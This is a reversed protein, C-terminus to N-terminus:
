ERSVWELNRITAQSWPAVVNGPIAVLLPLVDLLDGLLAQLVGLPSLFTQFRKGLHSVSLHSRTKCEYPPGVGGGWLNLTHMSYGVM